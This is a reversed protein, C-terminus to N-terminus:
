DDGNMQAIKKRNAVVRGPNGVVISYPPIVGGIVTAAGIVSGRGIHTGSLLIANPAIWVDDEIVVNYKSGQYEIEKQDHGQQQIPINIKKTSHNATRIWVYRAIAVDDGIWLGSECSDVAIESKEGFIFNRGIRVKNRDGIVAGREVSFNAGINLINRWYVQRMWRGIYDDPFYIIIFNMIQIIERKIGGLISM